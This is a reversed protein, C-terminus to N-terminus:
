QMSVRFIPFSKGDQEQCFKSMAAIQEPLLPTRRRRVWVRSGEAEYSRLHGYAEAAAIALQSHPGAEIIGLRGDGYDFVLMSHNPLGAGSLQHGLRSAWHNNVAFCIDGPQLAYPTPTGRLEHDLVYAPAYLYSGIEGASPQPPQGVQVLGAVLCVLSLGSMPADRYGLLRHASSVRSAADISRPVGNRADPKDDLM